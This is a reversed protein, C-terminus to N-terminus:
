ECGGAAGGLGEAPSPLGDGAHGHPDRRWALVKAATHLAYREERGRHRESIRPSALVIARALESATAQPHMSALTYCVMWDLRSWDDVQWRACHEAVQRRYEDALACV